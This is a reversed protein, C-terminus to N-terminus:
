LCSSHQIQGVGLHFAFLLHCGLSKLTINCRVQDFSQVYTRKNGSLDRGGSGTYSFEYGDDTDDEYGGALVISQCGIDKQGLMGAVPPLHIGVESVQLRNKWCMGVEFGASFIKTM